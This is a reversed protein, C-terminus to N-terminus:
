PGLTIVERLPPLGDPSSGVAAARPDDHRQSREHERPWAIQWGVPQSSARPIAKDLDFSYAEKMLFERAPTPETVGLGLFSLSVELLIAQAIFATTMQVVIAPIPIPRGVGACTVATRPERLSRERNAFASLAM